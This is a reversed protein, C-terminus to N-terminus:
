VLEESYIKDLWPYDSRIQEMIFSAERDAIGSQELVDEFNDRLVEKQISGSALWSEEALRFLRLVSGERTATVAKLREESLHDLKANYASWAGDEGLEKPGFLDVLWVQGDDNVLNALKLDIGHPLLTMKHGELDTRRVLNPEYEALTEIATRVLFWKRYNPVNAKRIMHDADGGPIFQEFSLVQWETDVKAVHTHFLKPINWGSTRLSRRYTRLRAHLFQAESKTLRKGVGMRKWVVMETSEGGIKFRLVSVRSQRGESIDPLDRVVEYHAAFEDRRLIEQEFKNPEEAITM